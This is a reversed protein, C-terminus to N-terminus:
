SRLATLVALMEAHIHGNSAVIGGDRPDFTEGHLGTLTGGAGLLVAAGGVTDWPSLNRQWTGDLWGCAVFCLDLAASGLRRLGEAVQNYALFAPTNAARATRATPFGTVLLARDLAATVSPTIAAGNRTAGLGPGGVFTWGVAPAHVVGLAPVGAAQLGISVAFLPLGHSFNVTGDLPDVYWTGADASSGPAAPHAAGEEGVIADEPFAQRLREVILAESRRDYETVLDREATKFEVAPRREWGELLIQGAERAIQEAIHLKHPWASMATREVAIV